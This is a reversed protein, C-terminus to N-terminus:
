SLNVEWECIVIAKKDLDCTQVVVFVLINSLFVLSLLFIGGKAM